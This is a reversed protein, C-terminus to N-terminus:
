QQNLDQKLPETLAPQRVQCEVKSQPLLLGAALHREENGGGPQHPIAVKSVYVKTQVARLQLLQRAQRAEAAQRQRQSLPTPACATEQKISAHVSPHNSPRRQVNQAAPGHAEM